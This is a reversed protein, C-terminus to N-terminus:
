VPARQYLGLEYVGMSIGARALVPGTSISAGRQYPGMTSNRGSHHSGAARVYRRSERIFFRLSRLDNRKKQLNWGSEFQHLRNQLGTGLWESM